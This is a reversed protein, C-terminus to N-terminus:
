FIPLTEPASDRLAKKALEFEPFISQVTAWFRPSHNMERLHALEHAIVYDILPLAFHMLRWNLRIRGDATCSGWQTTASSLAYSRYTVGLKEAYVILRKGFLEEARAQLWGQVRDKLQQEGADAPLSVNLERADEDLYVAARQGARIRLTIDAGLYPLTAGDRWQMQPQLRRASRERRENLKALIWRQKERIANEIEALTVWKPSTVRLGEDSVLFGITSRKSRLLVYDLTHEGLQIRRKGDAPRGSPPPVLTAPPAVVPPPLPAAHVVPTPTVILPPQLTPSPLAPGPDQIPTIQQAPSQGQEPEPAFLDLQLSLQNPNPKPKRLLKM